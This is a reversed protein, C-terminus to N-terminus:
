VVNVRRGLLIPVMSRKTLIGKTKWIRLLNLTHLQGTTTEFKLNAEVVNENTFLYLTHIKANESM